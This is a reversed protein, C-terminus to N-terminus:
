VNSPFALLDQGDITSIDKSTIIQGQNNEIKYNHKELFTILELPDRNLRQMVGMSVEFVLNKVKGSKFLNEAGQFVEM